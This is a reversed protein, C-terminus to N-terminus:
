AEPASARHVCGSCQKGSTANFDYVHEWIDTRTVVRGARLALYELLAYERATLEIAEAGRRCARRTTDIELDAIRLIPDKIGYRRRVLVGVRALLVAFAFPKILYDDAGANLGRVQDDVADRATLIFVAPGASEAGAVTEKGPRRRLEKLVSLGDLKPLMLDLIIVDYSGAQAQWLGQQGDAAANVAYGAKQLGQVLSERLVTFDEVILLRM